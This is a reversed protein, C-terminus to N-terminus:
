RRFQQLWLRCETIDYRPSGGPLREEPMGQRVYSKITNVSKVALNEMLQQRTILNREPKFRPHAALQYVSM